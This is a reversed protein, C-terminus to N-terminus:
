WYLTLLLMERSRLTVKYCSYLCNSGLIHLNTVSKTASEKTIKVFILAKECSFKEAVHKLSKGQSRMFLSPRMSDKRTSKCYIQKVTYIKVLAPGIRSMPPM